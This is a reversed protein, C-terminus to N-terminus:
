PEMPFRLIVPEKLREAAVKGEPFAGYQSNAVYYLDKEVMVGLTPEDYLPHSRELVSVETIRALAPDLRMRVVRHPRIGNQIGVLGSGAWLLGDVGTVAADEPADMLRAAGDRPDVRVVGRAYDAVFLWRGDPSFAMGQPSDLVGPELFVRFAATGHKLVYLRGSWPDAVWLDGEPGLTLDAFRARAFSAPPGIARRRRGTDLDFEVVTSRGEDEKRLGGTEAVGDTSAWLSRRGADVALALPSLLGDQAEPVFDRVQGDPGIRVIKRRHVSSVFFARTKPDYAIGETLLDKESLTFAAQSRELPQRLAAMAKKVDEFRPSGRLRAFDEDADLDFFLGMRAFRELIALSEAEGGLLAHGCALNYLARLSRPALDVAAQSETRFTAYDGARHAAAAREFHKQLEDRSDARAALTLSLALALAIWSVSTRSPRMEVERAAM